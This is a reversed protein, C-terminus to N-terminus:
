ISPGDFTLHSRTVKSELFEDNKWLLIIFEMPGFVIGDIQSGSKRFSDIVVRSHGGGGIIFLKTNAQTM